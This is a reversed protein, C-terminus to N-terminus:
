RRRGTAATNEPWVAAHSWAEVQRGTIRDLDGDGLGGADGGPCAHDNATRLESISSGVAFAQQLVAAALVSQDVGAKAKQAEGGGVDVPRGVRDHRNDSGGEAWRIELRGAAASLWRGRETVQRAQPGGFAPKGTAQMNAAAECGRTM